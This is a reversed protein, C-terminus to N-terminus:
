FKITYDFQWRNMTTDEGVKWDTNYWTVNIHSRLPLGVRVDVRHGDVNSGRRTDSQVWAYFISDPASDYRSLRVAVHGPMKYDGVQLRAFM